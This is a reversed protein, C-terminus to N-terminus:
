TGHPFLRFAVVRINIQIFLVHEIIIIILLAFVVLQATHRQSMMM